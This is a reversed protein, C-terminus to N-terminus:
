ARHVDGDGQGGHLLGAGGVHREIRGVGRVTEAVREFVRADRADDGVGAERRQRAANPAGSTWRSSASREARGALAGAGHRHGGSSRAYTM